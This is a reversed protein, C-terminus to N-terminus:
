FALHKQTTDRPAPTSLAERLSEPDKPEPWKLAGKKQLEDLGKTTEGMARVYVAGFHYKDLQEVAGAWTGGKNFDANVVLAADALAYIFKNRQMAHGVNFGADPDYPSILALRGDMLLERNEGDLAAKGLKDAMVGAVDGGHELAGRMAAQDIGRAAGSVLNVGAEAAIAGVNQTYELLGHDVNRSGVVALGGRDLLERRGCGYLVVPAKDGLRELLRTPYDPDSRAAIWISRSECREVTESLALGRALLATLRDPVVDTQANILDQAADDLLAGLPLERGKLFTELRNFEGPSLPKVSASDGGAILPATLLLTAQADPSLENM